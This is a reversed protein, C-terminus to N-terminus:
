HSSYEMGSAQWPLQTVVLSGPLHLPFSAICLTCTFMRFISLTVDNLVSILVSMNM